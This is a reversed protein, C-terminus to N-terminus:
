YMKKLDYLQDICVTGFELTSLNKFQGVHSMWSSLATKKKWTFSSSRSLAVPNKKRLWKAFLDPKLIDVGFRSRHPQSLALFVVVPLALALLNNLITTVFMWGAQSVSFPQDFFVSVPFLRICCHVWHWLFRLMYSFIMVALINRITCNVCVVCDSILSCQVLVFYQSWVSRTDILFLFVLFLSVKLFFFAFNQCM